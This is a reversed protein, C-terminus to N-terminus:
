YKIKYRNIQLCVGSSSLNDPNSVTTALYNSGELNISELYNKPSIRVM